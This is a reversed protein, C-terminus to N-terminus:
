RNRKKLRIVLYYITVLALSYLGTYGVLTVIVYWILVIVLIIAIILIYGLLVEILDM